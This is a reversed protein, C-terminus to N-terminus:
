PFRVLREEPEDETMQTAEQIRGPVLLSAEQSLNEM